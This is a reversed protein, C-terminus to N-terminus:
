FRSNNWSRRLPGTAPQLSLRAAALAAPSVAAAPDPPPPPPPPHEIAWQIAAAQAAGQADLYANKARTDREDLSGAANRFARILADRSALNQHANWNQANQLAGSYLQGRAAMSNNTGRVSNDYATQLAAARSYPNSHDDVVNGSADLGFGYTGGLQARQAADEQLTTDLNRQAANVNAGFNPDVPMAVPAPDPTAGPAPAAAMLPVSPARVAVHAPAKAAPKRVARGPTLKAFASQLAV